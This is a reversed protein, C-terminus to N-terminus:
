PTNKHIQVNGRGLSGDADFDDGTDCSTDGDGDEDAPGAGQRFSIMDMEAMSGQGNDIVDITFDVTTSSAEGRMQGQVRAMAPMKNQSQMTVVCTVYGHFREQELGRGATRDIYQVQGKANNGAADDAQANFAITNGPGAVPEGDSTLETIQGGGTVKYVAPAAQASAMSGIGLALVAGGVLLRKM